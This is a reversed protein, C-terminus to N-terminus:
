FVYMVEVLRDLLAGLRSESEVTSDCELLVVLTDLLQPHASYCCGSLCCTFVLSASVTSGTEWDCAVKAHDGDVRGTGLGREVVAEPMELDRTRPVSFPMQM